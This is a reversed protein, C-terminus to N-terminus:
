GADVGFFFFRYIMSKFASDEYQNIIHPCINLQQHTVSVSAGTHISLAFPTMHSMQQRRAKESHPPPHSHRHPTFTGMSGIDQTPSPSNFLSYSVSVPFNCMQRLPSLLLCVCSPPCLLRTRMRGWGLLSKLKM